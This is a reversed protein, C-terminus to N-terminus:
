TTKREHKKREKSCFHWWGTSFQTSQAQLPIITPHCGHGVHGIADGLFVIPHLEGTHSEVPTCFDGFCLASFDSDITLLLLM